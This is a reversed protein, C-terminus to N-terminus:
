SIWSVDQGSGAIKKGRVGPAAATEKGKGKNLRPRSSSGEDYEGDIDVDVDEDYDSDSYNGKSSKNPARPPMRFTGIFPARLLRRRNVEM